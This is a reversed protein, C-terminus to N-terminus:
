RVEARTNGSKGIVVDLEEVLEDAARAADFSRYRSAFVHARAKFESRSLLSQLKAGISKQDQRGRMTLGAGMCEVRHATMQAEVHAPALLQPISRLLTSTVTGAPSYSVCLDAQGGLRELDVPVSSISVRCHKLPELLRPEVGPSWCIVAADLRSLAGLIAALGPTGRRLYAFVRKAGAPWDLPAGHQLQGIPGIYREGPRAGYHDLEPFTTLWRLEVEFLDRLADIRPMHLETMVQNVAGLVRSEAAAAGAATAGSFGPFPPLPQLGPPLEFGTAILAAPVGACHAALLATPSYDIVILQPAYLKLLQLWARLCAGLQTSDAWGQMRLLDAYSTLSTPLPAQIFCVGAPALVPAALTVDRVAVLVEHGRSQLRRAVPLLRSLHGLNSGMEWALLVRSM